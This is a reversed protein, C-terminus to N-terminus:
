PLCETSRQTGYEAKNIFKPSVNELAAFSVLRDAEGSFESRFRIRDSLYLAGVCHFWCYASEKLAEALL